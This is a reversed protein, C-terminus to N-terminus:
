RDILEGLRERGLHAVSADFDRLVLNLHNMRVPRISTM